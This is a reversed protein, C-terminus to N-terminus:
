QSVSGGRVQSAAVGLCRSVAVSQLRPVADAVSAAFGRSMRSEGEGKGQTGRLGSFSAVRAVDAAKGRALAGRSWGGRRGREERM